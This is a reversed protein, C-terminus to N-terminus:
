SEPQTEQAQPRLNLRGTPMAVKNIAVKCDLVEWQDWNGRERSYGGITFETLRPLEDACPPPRRHPGLFYVLRISRKEQAESKRRFCCSPVDHPRPEEQIFFKIKKERM